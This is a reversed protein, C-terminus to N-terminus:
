NLSWGSRSHFCVHCYVQQHSISQTSALGIKMPLIVKETTNNNNQGHSRTIIKWTMKQNSLLLRTSHFPFLLSTGLACSTAHHLHPLHHISSCSAARSQGLPCDAATLLSAARELVERCTRAPEQYESNDPSVATALRAATWVRQSLASVVNKRKVVRETEDWGGSNGKLKETLNQLTGKSSAATKKLRSSNTGQHKNKFISRPILFFIRRESSHCILAMEAGREADAWMKEYSANLIKWTLTKNSCSAFRFILPQLQKTYFASISLKFNCSLCFGSTNQHQVNLLDIMEGFLMYHRSVKEKEEFELFLNRRSPM